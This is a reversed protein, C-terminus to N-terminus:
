LKDIMVDAVLREFLFTLVEEVKRTDQALLMPDVIHLTYKYM